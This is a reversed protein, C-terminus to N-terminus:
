LYFSHILLAPCPGDHFTYEADLQWPSNDAAGIGFDVSHTFISGLKVAVFSESDQPMGTESDDEWEDVVLNSASGYGDLDLAMDVHELEDPTALCGTSDEFRFDTLWFIPKEDCDDPEVLFHALLEDETLM